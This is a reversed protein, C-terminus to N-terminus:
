PRLYSWSPRRLRGGLVMLLGASGAFQPPWMGPAIKPYHLYYAEAFRIPNQHLGERIYDRVLLANMFRAAEDSFSSRESTYAGVAAQVTLVVCLLVGWVIMNRAIGQVHEVEATHHPSIAM